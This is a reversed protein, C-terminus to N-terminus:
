GGLTGRLLPVFRVDAIDSQEFGASTKDVVILKQADGQGVPIVLRGGPSLQEILADPVGPAGATVIIADFPGQQAWGLNGDDHKIRVNRIKLAKIRAKAYEILDFIREVTYVKKAMYALISAQYGSGTGIELVSDRKVSGSADSFLVQTMLAVIYPQSITQNHGIPLAIDEYGRHALAEDVFIHRPVMRMAELVREDTIGKARLRDILRGRTRRSTMGIGNLDFSLM